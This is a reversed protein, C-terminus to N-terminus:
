QSRWPMPAERGEWSYGLAQCVTHPYQTGWYFSPLWARQQPFVGPCLRVAVSCCSGSYPCTARQLASGPGDRGVASPGALASFPVSLKRAGHFESELASFLGHTLSRRAPCLLSASVSAPCPELRPLPQARTLFPVLFPGCVPSTRGQEQAGPDHESLAGHGCEGLDAPRAEGQDSRPGCGLLRQQVRTVKSSTGLDGRPPGRSGGSSCGFPRTLCSSRLRRVGRPSSPGRGGLRHQREM